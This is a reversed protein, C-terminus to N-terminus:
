NTQIKFSIKIVGHNTKGDEDIFHQKEELATELCTFGDGSLDVNSSFIAAEIRATMEKVQKKGKKDSWAHITVSAIEGTIDKTDDRTGFDEGIIIYPMPQGQPVSDYTSIDTITAALREYIKRQLAVGPSTRALTM